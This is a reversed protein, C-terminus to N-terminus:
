VPSRRYPIKAFDPHDGIHHFNHEWVIAQNEILYLGPERMVDKKATGFRNGHLVARVAAVIVAPGFMRKWDARFLGFAQFLDGTPDAIAKAEPWYHEFFERGDAPTGRFVFLIPPYGAM